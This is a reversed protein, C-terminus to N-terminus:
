TVLLWEQHTCVLSTLLVEAESPRDVAALYRQLVFEWEVRGGARIATCYVVPRV